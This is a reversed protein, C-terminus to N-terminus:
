QLIEDCSCIMEGIAQALTPHKKLDIEECLLNLFSNFQDILDHMSNMKNKLENASNEKLKKVEILLNEKEATLYQIEKMANEIIKSGMGRDSYEVHNKYKLLFEALSDYVNM